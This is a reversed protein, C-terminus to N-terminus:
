TPTTVTYIAPFAGVLPAAGTASETISASSLTLNAADFTFTGTLQDPIQQGGDLFTVDAGLLQYTIPAAVAVPATLMAPIAVAVTALV